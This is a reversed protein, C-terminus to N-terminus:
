KSAALGSHLRIRPSQRNDPQVRDANTGSDEARDYRLYSGEAVM